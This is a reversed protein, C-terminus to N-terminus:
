RSLETPWVLSVNDTSSRIDAFCESDNTLPLYKYTPMTRM